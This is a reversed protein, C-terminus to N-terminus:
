IPRTTTAMPLRSSPMWCRERTLCDLREDESRTTKYGIMCRPAPRCPRWPWFHPSSQNYSRRGSVRAVRMVTSPFDPWHCAVGRRDEPHTHWVNHWHRSHSTVRQGKVIPVRANRRLTASKVYCQCIAIKAQPEARHIQVHSQCHILPRTVQAASGLYHWIPHSHSFQPPQPDNQSCAIALYLMNLQLDKRLESCIPDASPWARHGLQSGLYTM